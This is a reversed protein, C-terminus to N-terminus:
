VVRTSRPVIPFFALAGMLAPTAFYATETCCTAGPEAGSPVTAALVASGSGVTFATLGGVTPLHHALVRGDADTVSRHPPSIRLRSRAAAKKQPPGRPSKQQRERPRFEILPPPENLVSFFPAPDLLLPSPRGVEHSSRHRVDLKAGRCDLFSV